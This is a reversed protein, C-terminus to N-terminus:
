LHFSGTVGYFLIIARNDAGSERKEDRVRLEFAKRSLGGYNLTEPPNEAIVSISYGSVSTPMSPEFYARAPPAFQGGYSPQPHIGLQYASSHGLSSVPSPLPGGMGLAPAAGTPPGGSREGGRTMLLQSDVEELDALMLSHHTGLPHFNIASLVPFVTEGKIVEVKIAPQENCEAAEKRDKLDELRNNSQKIMTAVNQASKKDTSARRLNEAGEKIKLEKRIEKRIREKLEQLTQFVQEQSAGDCLAQRAIGLAPAPPTPGGRGVLRRNDDMGYCSGDRVLEGTAPQYGYKSSLDHLLPSLQYDSLFVFNGRGGSAQYTLGQALETGVLPLLLEILALHKMQKGAMLRRRTRRFENLRMLRGLKAARASEWMCVPPAKSMEADM